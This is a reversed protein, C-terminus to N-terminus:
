STLSILTPLTRSEVGKVKFDGTIAQPWAYVALFNKWNNSKELVETRGMTGTGLICVAMLVLVLVVRKWLKM